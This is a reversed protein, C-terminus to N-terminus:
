AGDDCKKNATDVSTTVMETTPKLTSIGSSAFSISGLAVLLAVVPPSKM